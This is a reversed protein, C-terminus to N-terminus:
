EGDEILEDPLSGFIKWLGGVRTSPKSPTPVKMTKKRAISLTRTQIKLEAMYGAVFTRERSIAKRRKAMIM